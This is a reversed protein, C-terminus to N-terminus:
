ITLLMSDAYDAYYAYDLRALLQVHMLVNEKPWKSSLRQGLWKPVRSQLFNYDDKV